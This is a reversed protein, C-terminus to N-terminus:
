RFNFSVGTDIAIHLDRVMGAAMLLAERVEQPAIPIADIQVSLIKLDSLTDHGKASSPIGISERMGKITTVARDLLRRQEHTSIKEVQNAARILEAVIANTASLAQDRIGDRKARTRGRWNNPPRNTSGMWEQHAHFHPAHPQTRQPRTAVLPIPKRQRSSEDSLVRERALYGGQTLKCKPPSFSEDTEILGADRAAFITKLGVGKPPAKFSQKTLGILLVAQRSRM